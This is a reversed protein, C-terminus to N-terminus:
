KWSYKAFPGALGVQFAERIEPLPAMSVNPAGGISRRRDAALGPLFAALWRCIAASGDEINEAVHSQFEPMRSRLTHLHGLVNHRKADLMKVETSAMRDKSRFLRLLAKVKMAQGTFDTLQAKVSNCHGKEAALQQNLDKM